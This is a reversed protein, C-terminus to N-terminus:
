NFYDKTQIIDQIKGNRLLIIRDTLIKLEKEDSSIFLFSKGLGLLNQIISYIEAKGGMDIGATPELVILLEFDYAMWRAILVKQQNGGSLESISQFISNCKIKLNKIKAKASEKLNSLRLIGLKSNLKFNLISINDLVNFVDFIGENRRDEPIFGVGNYISSKPDFILKDNIKVFGNTKKKSGFISAALEISDLYNESIIGLSEGRNIRFSINDLNETSLNDVVLLSQDDLNFRDINKTEPINFFKLLDSINIKNTETTHILKSDLFVSVTDAIEFVEELKHTIYIITKGSQKMEKVIDKIIAFSNINLVSTPEDFIIIECNTNLVKAISILQKEAVTLESIKKEPSVIFSLKKLINDTQINIDNKNYLISNYTSTILSLNEAITMTEVLGFDQPVLVIGNKLADAPKTFSVIRNKIFISGSDATVEGYLLKVFTSKGAGNAGVIARVEGQQVSFDVESVAM